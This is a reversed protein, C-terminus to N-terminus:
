LILLDSKLPIVKYGKLISDVLVMVEDQEKRSFECIMMINCFGCTDGCYPGLPYYLLRTSGM